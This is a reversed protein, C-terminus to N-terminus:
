TSSRAGSGHRSERRRWGGPECRRASSRKIGRSHRRSRPGCATGPNRTGHARASGLGRAFTGIENQTTAAPPAIQAGKKPPILVRPSRGARHHEIAEYVGESDYAADATASAIPRDVQRLLASVRAGDRASKSTLDCALVDGTVEEIAVHIKRYDRNKPPKRMQGVHVSLGSSAILIHVPKRSARVGLPVAGLRAKRRSITTHDPVDAALNLLAFLSRVFGETQRSPLHFVLGLTVMTEIAHNSYTAPRGARQKTRRPADWNALTGDTISIWITSSGRHRLGERLWRCPTVLAVELGKVMLPARVPAVAAPMQSAVAYVADAADAGPGSDWRRDRPGRSRRRNETTGTLQDSWGALRGTHTLSM